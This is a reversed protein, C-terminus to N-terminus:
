PVLLDTNGGLLMLIAISVANFLSHMVMCTILSGTQVYAIAFAVALVFLPALSPIHMHLAAFIFAVAAMAIAPTTRRLALPLLVGRFIAEEVMPVITVAVVVVQVRLWGPVTPDLILDIVPQPGIPYDAARLLENYFYATAAVFPLMALYYLVGLGVASRGQRWSSVGLLASSRIGRRRAQLALATAGAVPFSIVQMSLTLAHLEDPPRGALKAWLAGAAGAVIQIGVFVALMFVADMDQWPLARITALHGEPRLKRLHHRLILAALALLGGQLLVGALISAAVRRAHESALLDM